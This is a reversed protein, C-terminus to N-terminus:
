HEAASTRHDQCDAAGAVGVPGGALSVVGGSGGGQRHVFDGSVDGSRDPGADLVVGSGFGLLACHKFRSSKRCKHDIHQDPDVVDGSVVDVRDGRGGDVVEGAVGG